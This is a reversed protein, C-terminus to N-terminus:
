WVRVFFDHPLFFIIADFEGDGSENFAEL